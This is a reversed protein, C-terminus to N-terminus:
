KWTRWLSIASIILASIAIVRTWNKDRKERAMQQDSWCAELKRQNLKKKPYFRNCTYTALEIFSDDPTPILTLGYYNGLASQLIQATMPKNYPKNSKHSPPYALESIEFLTDSLGESFGRKWTNQFCGAMEGYWVYDEYPHQKLTLYACNVCSKCNARRPSKGYNKEDSM